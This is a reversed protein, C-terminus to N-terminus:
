RYAEKRHSIRLVLIGDKSATYVVRYDGARFRYLGEFEGKLREGERGSGIEREFKRIIWDADPKHIKRLDKEVSLKYSINVSM